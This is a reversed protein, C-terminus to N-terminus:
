LGFQLTDGLSTIVVGQAADIIQVQGYRPIEDGVKVSLTRGRSTELWARGPIIARVTYVPRPAVARSKKTERSISVTALRQDLNQVQGGLDEIHRGVQTLLSQTQQFNAQLQQIQAQNQQAIQALNEVQTQLGETSPTAINPVPNEVSVMAHQNEVSKQQAQKELAVEPLVHSERSLYQYIIFVAVVVGVLILVRRNLLIAKLRSRPPQIPSESGLHEGFEEGDYQYEKEQEEPLDNRKAM